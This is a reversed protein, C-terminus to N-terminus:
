SHTVQFRSVLLSGDDELAQVIVRDGQELSDNDQTCADLTMMRQAVVVTVKGPKQKQIRTYVTGSVGIADRMHINGSSQLRSAWQFIRGMIYTTIIGAFLDGAIALGPAVQSEWLLALGVLGFMTFFGSLGQLSLFKFSLDAEGGEFLDLDGDGIAGGFFHVVLQILLIAGGLIAATSFLIPIISTM